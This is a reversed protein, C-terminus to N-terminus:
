NYGVSVIDTPNTREVNFASTLYAAFDKCCEEPNYSVNYIIILNLQYVFTIKVECKYISNYYMNKVRLKYAITFM